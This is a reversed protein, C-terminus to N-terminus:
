VKISVKSSSQNKEIADIKKHMSIIHDSMMEQNDKLAEISFKYKYILETLLIDNESRIKIIKKHQFYGIIGFYISISICAICLINILFEATEM